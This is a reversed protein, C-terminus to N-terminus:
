IMSVIRGSLEGNSYNATLICCATQICEFSTVKRKSEILSILEDIEPFPDNQKHFNKLFDEDNDLFPPVWFASMSFSGLESITNKVYKYFYESKHVPPIIHLLWLINPIRYDLNTHDLIKKLEKAFYLRMENNDKYLSSLVGFLGGAGWILFEDYDRNLGFHPGIMSLSSNNEQWYKLQRETKAKLHLDNTFANIIGLHIPFCWTNGIYTSYNVKNLNSYFDFHIKRIYEFTIPIIEKYSSALIAFSNLLAGSEKEFELVEIHRSLLEFDINIWKSQIMFDFLSVVDLKQSVRRHQELVDFLFNQSESSSIRYIRYNYTGYTEKLDDVRSSNQGGKLIVQFYFLPKEFKENKKSFVKMPNYTMGNTSTSEVEFIFLPFKQNEETFWAIDIAPSQIKESDIPRENQVHYELIQGLKTIGEIFSIGENLKHESM